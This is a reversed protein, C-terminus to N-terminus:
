NQINEKHTYRTITRHGKKFCKEKNKCKTCAKYNSYILKIKNKGRKEQPANYKGDLTLEEKEPYIFVNKINMLSLTIKPLHIKQYIELIKKKNQQSTPILATIGLNNLYTM